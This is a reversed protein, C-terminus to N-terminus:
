QIAGCSPFVRNNPPFPPIFILETLYNVGIGQFIPLLLLVLYFSNLDSYTDTDTNPFKVVLYLYRYVSVQYTYKYKTLISTLARILIYSLTCIFFVPISFWFFQYQTHAASSLRCPKANFDGSSGASIKPASQSMQCIEAKMELM